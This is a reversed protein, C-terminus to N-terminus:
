FVTYIFPAIATSSLAVLLSLVLLILLIPLLWWKKNHLLFVAFDKWLPIHAERCAVAKLDDAPPTDPLTGPPQLGAPPQPNAPASLSGDAGDKTETEVLPETLLPSLLEPPRDSGAKPVLVVGSRAPVPPRPRRARNVM